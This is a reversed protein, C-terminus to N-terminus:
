GIALVELTNGNGNTADTGITFGREGPTICDAAEITRTGDLITKVASGDGMDDYWELQLGSTTNVVKIYKPRFGTVVPLAAGTGAISGVAIQGSALAANQITM